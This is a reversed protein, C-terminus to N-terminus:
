EQAKVSAGGHWLTLRGFFVYNITLAIALIGLAFFISDSSRQERLLDYIWDACAVGAWIPLLNLARMVIKNMAKQYTDLQDM